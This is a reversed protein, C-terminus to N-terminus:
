RIYKLRKLNVKDLNYDEHDRLDEWLNLGLQKAKKKDMSEIAEAWDKQDRCLIGTEGQRIVKNYPKTDSAIVATQTFAAETIKLDSKCWNFRNSALPVLSVDINKYLLGYDFSTKPESCKNFMLIDEYGMDKVGFTYIKSYDYGIEKLDVNHGIAGMYGFRVVYSRTKRQQFWQPDNEYIANNVFEIIAKPNERSMHKALYRSPTWIVDAIKITKKIDPSYYSEYVAKAPNEPNLSWYDDNDLILRVGHKKLMRSFEKHNNVSVKRSVLLNSAIDLNINKLESLNQIWYFQHGLEQLRTLPAILRHYNVGNLGDVHVITIM